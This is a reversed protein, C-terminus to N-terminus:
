GEPYRAQRLWQPLRLDAKSYGGGMIPKIDIIPSQNVADLGRVRLIRGERELLETETMLVPNPRAPSRTAFIGTLPNEAIGMPHVKKLERSGEPMQHPWFLVLLHSFAEIGELLPEFEPYLILRSIEGRVRQQHEFTRRRKEALSLGQTEPSQPDPSQTGPSQTERTLSNEVMGVPRLIMEPLPNPEAM